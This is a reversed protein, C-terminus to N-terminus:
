APIEVRSRKDNMDCSVKEEKRARNEIVVVVMDISTILVTRLVCELVVCLRTIHLPKGNRNQRLADKSRLLDKASTSWRKHEDILQGGLCQM